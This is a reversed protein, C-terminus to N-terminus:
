FIKLHEGKRVAEKVMKWEYKSPKRNKVFALIEKARTTSLIEDEVVVIHLTRLRDPGTTTTKYDLKM